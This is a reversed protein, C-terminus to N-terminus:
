SLYKEILPKLKEKTAAPVKDPATIIAFKLAETALPSPAAEALGPVARQLVEKAFEANKAMTEMIDNVDRGSKPLM